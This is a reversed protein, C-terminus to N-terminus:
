WVHVGISQLAVCARVWSYRKDLDAEFWSTYTRREEATSVALCRLLRDSATDEELLSALAVKDLSFVSPNSQRLARVERVWEASFSVTAPPASRPEVLVFDPQSAAPPASM